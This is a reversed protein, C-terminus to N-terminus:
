GAANRLRVETTLSVPSGGQVRSSVTLTLRVIQPTTAGPGSATCAPPDYCFIQSITVRDLVPVPSGADLTRQLQQGALRYVIHRESGNVLTVMDLESQTSTPSVSLAQRLEKTIRNSAARVQDLAQTKVDQDRETKTGTRLLALVSGLVLLLLGIVIVLEVVTFGADDDRSRIM